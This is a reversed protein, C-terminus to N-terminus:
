NERGCTSPGGDPIESSPGALPGLILEASGFIFLAMQVLINIEIVWPINM